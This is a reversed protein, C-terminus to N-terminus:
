DYEYDWKAATTHFGCGWSTLFIARMVAIASRFIAQAPRAIAIIQNTGASRDFLKKGVLVFRVDFSVSRTCAYPNGIQSGEKIRSNAPLAIAVPLVVFLDTNVLICQSINGFGSPAETRL